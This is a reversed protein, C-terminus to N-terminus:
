RFKDSTFLWSDSLLVVSPLNAAAPM